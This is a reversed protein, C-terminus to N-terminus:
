ILRPMMMKSHEAEIMKRKDGINMCCDQLPCSRLSDILLALCIPKASSMNLSSNMLYGLGDEADSTLSAFGSSCSLREPLEDLAM